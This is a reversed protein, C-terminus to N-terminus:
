VIAEGVAAMRRCARKHRRWDAAQCAASCYRCRCGACAKSAAAAESVGALNACGPHNCVVLLPAAAALARCLELIDAYQQSVDVAALDGDHADGCEEGLGPQLALREDASHRKAVAAAWRPHSQQLRLLYGWKVPQSGSSSSTGGGSSPAASSSSSGASTSAARSSSAQSSGAGSAKSSATNAAAVAPPPPPPAQGGAGRDAASDLSVLIDWMGRAAHLVLLQWLMWQGEVGSYQLGSLPGLKVALMENGSASAWRISFAPEANLSDYLLQPGAAEMADALQVLSRALVVALLAASAHAQSSSSSAALAATTQLLPEASLAQVVRPVAAPFYAAAAHNAAAPQGMMSAAAQVFQVARKVLSTLASALGAVAATNCLAAESILVATWAPALLQVAALMDRAKLAPARLCCDIFAAYAAPHAAALRPLQGLEMAPADAVGIGAAAAKLAYLQRPSDGFLPPMTEATDQCECLQLQQVPAALAQLLQLGAQQLVEPPLCSSGTCRLAARIQTVLLMNCDALWAIDQLREESQQRQQQQVAGAALLQLELVLRVAAASLMVTGGHQQQGDSGQWALSSLLGLASARARQRCMRMGDEPTSAGDAALDAAADLYAQGGPLLQLMDQHFAPIPLLDCKAGAWRQQQQQQQQAEQHQHLLAVHAILPQLLVEQVASHLLLPQLQPAVDAALQGPDLLNHFRHIIGAAACQLRIYAMHPSPNSSSSSSSSSSAACSSGAAATAAPLLPGCSQLQQLLRAAAHLATSQLAAPVLVCSCRFVVDVTRLLSTVIDFLVPFPTWSGACSSCQQTVAQLLTVLSVHMSGLLGSQELQRLMAAALAAVSCGAQPTGAAQVLATNLKSLCVAGRLWVTGTTPSYAKIGEGADRQQLLGLPLHQPQQQTWSLLTAANLAAKHRLALGLLHGPASTDDQQSFGRVVLLLADACGTVVDQQEHTWVTGPPQQLLQAVAPEQLMTDLLAAAGEVHKPLRTQQQEGRTPLM